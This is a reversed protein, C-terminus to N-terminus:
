HGRCSSSECGTCLPSTDRSPSSSPTTAVIFTRISSPRGNEFLAPSKTSSLNKPQPSLHETLRRHCPLLILYTSGSLTEDGCKLNPLPPPPRVDEQPTLRSAQFSNRQESSLQHAFSAMTGVSSRNRAKGPSDLPPLDVPRRSSGDINRTDEDEDHGDEEEDEEALPEMRGSAARSPGRSHGGAAASLGGGNAQLALDSLKREADEALHERITVAAAPFIGLSVQPENSLTQSTSSSSFSYIDFSSTSSSLLRSRPTSSVVYGRYWVDEASDDSSSSAIPHLPRFVEVVYM